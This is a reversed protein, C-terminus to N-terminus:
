SAFPVHGKPLAQASAELDCLFLTLEEELAKYAPTVAKPAVPAVLDKCLNKLLEVRVSSPGSSLKSLAAFLRGWGGVISFVGLGSFAFSVLASARDGDRYALAGMTFARLSVLTSIAMAAPPFPMMLISATSLVVEFLLWSIREAVSTTDCDVDDILRLTMADFEDGLDSIRTYEGYASVILDTPDGARVIDDILTGIIRQDKIATRRYFYDGLEHAKWQGVLDDRSRLWLGDPADPTYLLDDAANGQMHRFIYVGEIRQGRLALQYVGDKQYTRDGGVVPPELELLSEVAAKMWRRQATSLNGQLSECLATRTIQACLLHRHLARYLGYNADTTVLTQRAQEIYREGLRASRIYSAVRRRGLRSLDQGCTSTFRAFDEFNFSSDYGSIVVQTLTMVADAELTVLVTDPDVWGGTANSGLVTNIWQGVEHHAFSRFHPLSYHKEYERGLAQLMFDLDSLTQRHNPTADRYWQPTVAQLEDLLGEVKMAAIRSLAENWTSAEWPKLVMSNRIWHTTSRRQQELHRRFGSREACAVQGVLYDCGPATASWGAMADSLHHVADFVRVDGGPAGPAYVIYRWDDGEPYRVYFLDKLVGGQENLLVCGVEVGLAELSGSHQGLQEFVEFAASDMGQYRASLFSLSLRAQLADAMAATGEETLYLAQVADIYAMRLNLEAIMTAIFQASLSPGQVVHVVVQAEEGQYGGSLVWQGLSLQRSGTQVHGNLDISYVVNLVVQEADVTLGLHKQVYAQIQLRAYDEYSAHGQLLTDVRQQADALTKERQEYAVKEDGVLCRLWDPQRSIRYQRLRDAHRAQLTSVLVSQREMAALAEWVRPAPQSEARANQLIDLFWQRQTCQLDAVQQRFVDDACPREVVTLTQGQLLAQQSPALHQLLQQRTETKQLRWTVDGLLSQLDGYLGLGDWASYLCVATDASHEAFDGLVFAQLLPTAQGSDDVLSLTRLTADTDFISEKLQKCRAVREPRGKAWLNVDLFFLYALLLHLKNPGLAEDPSLAGAWFAQLQELWTDAWQPLLEGLVQHIVNVDVDVPQTSDATFLQTGIQELSLAQQDILAQLALDILPVGQQVQLAQLDVDCGFAAMRVQFHQRIVQALSPATSLVSQIKLVTNTMELLLEQVSFNELRETSFIFPTSTNM